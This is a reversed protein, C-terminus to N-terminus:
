LASDAHPCNQLPNSVRSPSRAKCALPDLRTVSGSALSAGTFAPARQNRRDRWRAVTHAARDGRRCGNPGADDEIVDILYSAYESRGCAVLLASAILIEQEAIAKDNAISLLDATSEWSALQTIDAALSGAFDVSLRDRLTKLSDEILRILVAVLDNLRDSPEAAELAFVLQRSDSIMLSYDRHTLADDLQRLLLRLIEALPANALRDLTHSSM